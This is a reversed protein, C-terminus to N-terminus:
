TICERTYLYPMYVGGNGLRERENEKERERHTHTHRTYRQINRLTSREADLEKDKM